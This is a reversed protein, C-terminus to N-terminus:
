YKKLLLRLNARFRKWMAYLFSLVILSNFQGRKLLRFYFKYIRQMGDVSIKQCVEQVLDNGAIQRLYKYRRIFSKKYKYFFEEHFISFVNYMLYYDIQKSLDFVAKQQNIKYLANILLIANDFQERCYSRTISINNNRYHYLNNGGIICVKEADLFTAFTTLGDEGIRIREDINIMNPLLISRRFIKNWMAAYIGFYYFNGSYIMRPYVTKILGKKDYIGSPVSQKVKTQFNSYNFYADFTVIDADNKIATDCAVQLANEALWDDSDVFYVYKGVSRKLGAKRAKTQGGNTQHIVSIRKDSKAYKDCIKGSKDTSGDDVLILEFDTFEQGLISDVCQNIYKEVNYVPVILSIFCNNRTKKVM